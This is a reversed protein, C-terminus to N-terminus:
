FGFISNFFGGSQSNGEVTNGPWFSIVIKKGDPSWSSGYNRVSPDQGALKQPPTKGEPDLLFLQLNADGEMLMPVIVRKGDPSWSFYGSFEKVGSIAKNPLLVKFGKAQGDAHVIAVESSGDPLNGKFCIWQGDPSWSLGWLVQSYEKELLIRRQRTKLDHVCLDTNVTYALEDKKPSWDASWGDPDILHNDSGDANMVWIGRTSSYRSYVIQKGDPSWSPLTGDGLDKPKSGDSNVVFVHSSGYNEGFLSRWCDFTIKSGDHSWEPSGLSTYEPMSLLTHLDTGNASLIMLPEGKFRHLVIDMDNEKEGFDKPRGKKADNLSIKLNDGKLEFIGPMDQDQFKVDIAAPTQKADPTYSMEAFKQDGVRMTLNKESIVINFPQQENKPLSKKSGKESLLAVSDAHWPGIISQEAQKNDPDTGGRCLSVGVVDLLMAASLVALSPLHRM